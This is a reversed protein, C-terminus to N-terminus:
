VCLYMIKHKAPWALGGHWRRAITEVTSPIVGIEILGKPIAVHDRNRDLPHVRLFPFLVPPPSNSRCNDRCTQTPLRGV